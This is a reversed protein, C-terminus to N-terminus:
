PRSTVLGQLAHGLTESHLMLRGVMGLSLITSRRGVLLGFHPCNTRAVSLTLLRGLSAHPIVNAEDDLVRPDLGAKRIVPEPDVGLDRLTLAIEKAAGVQIFGPPLTRGLVPPQPGAAKSGRSLPGQGDTM